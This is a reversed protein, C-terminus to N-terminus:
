ERLLEALASRSRRDSATFPAPPPGADRQASGDALHPQSFLEEVPGARDEDQDGRRRSSGSPCAAHPGGAGEMALHPFFQRSDLGEEPVAVAAHIVVAHRGRPRRGTHIARPPMEGARDPRVDPPPVANRSCPPTSQGAARITRSRHRHGERPAM